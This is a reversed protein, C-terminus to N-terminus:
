EWQASVFRQGDLGQLEKCSQRHIRITRGRAVYAIIGHPPKPKCCASLVVPLNEEGTILVKGSYEPAIYIEKVEDVSEELNFISKLVHVASLTGIGVLELIEEREDLNRTKAGFSKLLSFKEDLIPKKMLKLEKNLLDRGVKINAERDQRKFWNKIKSKATGTHAMSLWFKSPHANTRTVIEVSDGNKLEYDLPVIKKNVKAGFCKNGVDSHVNYAFDLPTSGRALEMVDGKPTLVFIKDPFIDIEVDSKIEDVLGRLWALHKEYNGYLSLPGHARAKRITDLHKVSFGREKIMKEVKKRDELKMQQFKEVFDKIYGEISPEHECLAKLDRLANQLAFAMSGSRVKEKYAWHSAVGFEAEKHMSETRIQIETPESYLEGGVGLVTTHLSRYGNPKSVAIYDKFRDQLPVFFGHLLGLTSYLHSIQEKGNGVEDPLIIRVAFLDYIQSLDLAKKKEMKQYVSWLHKMRGSVEVVEVGERILLQEIQSKAFDMCEESREEYKGMEKSLEKWQDPCLYKFCLDEMESKIQYIGLRSAIAAHIYLSERAIRERKHEPVFELTRLNHLRDSLKIFVVRIDRAMALFMKKWNEIKEDEKKVKVVALKDMAEVLRMVEVGFEKKIDQLTFDTDESVDHLLCAQISHLDPDMKLLIRTAEVPHVIYPQGSYRKQDKHAMKAFEYARDVEDIDIDPRTLLIESRLVEYIM